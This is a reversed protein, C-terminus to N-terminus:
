GMGMWQTGHSFYARAAAIKAQGMAVLREVAVLRQRSYAIFWTCYNIALWNCLCRTSTSLVGFVSPLRSNKRVTMTTTKIRALMSANSNLMEEDRLTAAARFSKIRRMSLMSGLMIWAKHRMSASVIRVATRDIAAL